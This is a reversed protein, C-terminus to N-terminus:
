VSGRNAFNFFHQSVQEAVVRGDLEVVIRNDITHQQASLGTQLAQPLTTALTQMQAHYQPFQSSLPDAQGTASGKAQSLASLQQAFSAIENVPKASFPAFRGAQLLQQQTQQNRQVRAEAQAPTYTGQSLRAQGIENDRQLHALAYGGYLPAGNSKVGLPSGGYNFGATPKHQASVTQGFQRKAEANKEAEAESRALTPVAQEGLTQAMSVVGIGSAVKGVFGLGKGLAGWRGGGTTTPAGVRGNRVGGGMEPLLGGGKGGGLLAISGAAAMAAAGLAGIGTAAGALATTLEPYQKAYETLTESTSGLLNNFGEMSEMQAFEATSKLSEVKYDNSASIVAHSTDVAKDSHTVKEDVEKGLKVNNRIGLLAMLAQRDSIVQGIATGEVFNTMQDLIAKQEDGKATSLKKQLAQYKADNGIVDDMISMFAEMSNKGQMKYSEMTAAYDITRKKGKKDTYELGELRDVTEKSTLKGLLNVLNNGAEDSTGATVRAQQNAVLLAKFGELGTLGAQKGAAMQQPLWAAMDKLEFNGAQGAAVAMDLAKGIDAEAIGNQLASVIISAIDNTDSGTAVAAKQLTPLLAMATDAKVTGSALLKDLAGLAEEKTGGGESVAQKVANHLKQKGAIRGEVGEDSFATNAVMALDRDYGMSKRVPEHLMMAGATVGAAVGMAGRGLNGLRQGTPTKGMEANLERVKNRVKEQARALERSSAVGSRALRNYQAVTRQLERQIAHESRVGLAQRAAAVQKASNLGVRAAQESIQATQQVAQQQVQASRKTEAATAQAAKQAQQAARQVVGSAFDQAKIQLALLLNNAM